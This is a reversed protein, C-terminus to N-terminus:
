KEERKEHFHFTETEQLKLFNPITPLREQRGGVAELIKCLEFITNFKQFFFQRSNPSKKQFKHFNNRFLFFTNQFNSIIM